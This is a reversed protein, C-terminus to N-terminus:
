RTPEKSPVARGDTRTSPRDVIPNIMTGVEPIETELTMGPRLFLPPQRRSGVGAPTGTFILDGPELTIRHSIQSILAPIGTILQATTVHQVEAGDVRGILEINDPDPFEDISVLLPGIPSFTDYSKAFSFQRLPERAQEARDSVDQGATLGALHDWAADPDINRTRRGVVAVVEAEYDISQWDADIEITATPGCVSGSAKAFLVPQDPATRGAEAAHLQYNLAVALITGPRPVPPGLEDPEFPVFSDAYQDALERLAPHSGVDLYVAPDSAFAGRSATAIDLIRDDRVISARGARNAFKV